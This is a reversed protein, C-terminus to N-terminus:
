WHGNPAGGERSVGNDGHRLYAAGTPQVTGRAGARRARRGSAVRRHVGDAARVRGTAGARSAGLGSARADGCSSPDVRGDLVLGYVHPGARVGSRAADRNSRPVRSGRPARDDRDDGAIARRAIRARDDGQRPIPAPRSHEGHAPVVDGGGITRPRDGNPAVEDRRRRRDRGGDAQVLARAICGAGGLGIGARVGVGDLEARVAIGAPVPAM